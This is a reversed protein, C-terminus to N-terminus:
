VDFIRGPNLINNPDLAKKIQRMLDFDHAARHKLLERKREVGIGHEASISGHRLTVDGYVIDQITRKCHLYAEDSLHGPVYMNYHMNGDGIHGFPIITVEPMAAKIKVEAHELFDAIQDLPLSIDFHISRGEQRLAPPIGERLAWFERVQAGSEAIAADLIKGEEMARGALQEFIERLPLGTGSSSLEILLYHPAADACPLRTGPINKIVLALAGQSMIEFATLHEACEAKFLALLDLATAPDPIAAIATVRQRPKPFLKLVAATIIGLTGEAGIFYHNLNYGANDKRLRKLGAYISGDALVVELGLVLDRMNGYRLVATGGANCAVTGGITASGESAMSLPFLFGAEDATQQLIQLIVGAEVTVNSGVPDLNRIKNMRSLNLLVEHGERSPIGGDVLGTNGGQPVIPLGHAACIKVIEALQATSDPLVILPTAGVWKNRWSTLYLQMRDPADCYGGPGALAKIKDLVEHNRLARNASTM